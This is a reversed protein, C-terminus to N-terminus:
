ENEFKGKLHQVADQILIYRHHFYDVVEKDIDVWEKGNWQVVLWASNPTLFEVLYWKNKKKMINHKIYGNLQLRVTTHLDASPWTWM